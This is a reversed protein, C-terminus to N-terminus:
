CSKNLFPGNGTETEKIITKEICYQIYYIFTGYFNVPNSGCEEPIPLSWEALQAVVVAWYKKRGSITDLTIQVFPIQRGPAAPGVLAQMYM